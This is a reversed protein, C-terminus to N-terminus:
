TRIVRLVEEVTTEGAEVKRLGDQAMTTMGEKIAQNRIAASDARELILKNIDKSVNLCEFIGVRGKYGRHGCVKCGKGKYLLTPVVVEMGGLSFQAKILRQIEPSPTYSEVCNICIRRVLRQAIILNLTSTLLFPEAGLDILRSITSAADNTHLTSLVLHGTLAAQIAIQTTDSDRIEGVMVIDPDQRVISKLGGAFTIGAKENVQVQNIRPIDYEVPDEITMINVKPKNLIHLVTYLTTTKGCGTPGTVLLMGYTKKINEEITEADRMSLGLDPLNLPKDSSQLLRMEVKEGRLLPIISVRIDLSGTNSTFKFRGDQPKRHEDILLNALIKVRAVLFPHIIQPLTLVERMIGDIRYRVLLADVLPEFHIDSAMADVAYEIIADLIAVIPVEEAVKALNIEGSITEAKKINETIIQSFKEGIQEKYQDFARKLDISSVIYPEIICDFKTELYEIVALDGPDVMAVKLVKKSEDFDFAALSKKKAFNEPIMRVVDRKEEIGRLDTTPVRFFSSLVEALFRESIGERGLLVNYLTMNSRVAEKKADEFDAQEIIRTKLLIEEFKQDDIHM